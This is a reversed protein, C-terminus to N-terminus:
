PLFETRGKPRGFFVGSFVANEGKPGTIRPLVRGRVSYSLYVGEEYNPLSRVDILARIGFDFM